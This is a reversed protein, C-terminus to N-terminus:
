EKGSSIFNTYVAIEDNAYDDFRHATFIKFGEAASLYHMQMEGGIYVRKEKPKAAQNARQEDMMDIISQPVSFNEPIRCEPKALLGYPELKESKFDQSSRYRYSHILGTCESLGFHYVSTTVDESISFEEKYEKWFSLLISPAHLDLNDIGRTIIRENILVFWRGLIGLVGTSAIILHLHPIAFAKTTFKHPRGDPHTALTDTAVLVQDKDTFVILSSM